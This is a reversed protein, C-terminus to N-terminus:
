ITKVMYHNELHYGLKKEYYERVGVGAIVAVKTYGRSRAIDEAVKMMKQGLGKHQSSTEQNTGVSSSIGYVHVERVLAADVLEPVFDFGPTPDIRLRLFGAINEYNRLEGSYYIKKGFLMCIFFSICYVIYSYTWCSYISEYSIFYEIGESATTLRVVLKLRSLADINDKIEHCRICNCTEGCSSMRQHIIQRLHSKRQYGAEMSKTPIDRVLRQIRVSPHVRSKYFRCVDILDEINAEAYPQYTGDQYWTHIESTVILDNSASKVVATPYIKIDDFQLDTDCLLRAFMKLDREKSSGPLDPMIHVVVKLAVGKLLRIARITDQTTCGRMIKLLIDDDVHQVGIQIRTAGYRLYQRVTRETIYDPRTELTLGVVGFVSTENIHIEEEISLPARPSSDHVTNMTWYLEQIVQDRYPKPMVDWTGGSLIVEIKKKNKQHGSPINGTHMYARLRDLIQSRIDFKNRTARMMAPETSIYSKPQTPVGHIDTETPCYACKEPCSFKIDEGPKTVITVVIVGSESRSVRKIMWRKCQFSIKCQKSFYTEYTKRIHAKSPCVRYKMKLKSFVSEIEVVSTSTGVTEIFEKTFDMMDGDENEDEFANMPKICSIDEIDM